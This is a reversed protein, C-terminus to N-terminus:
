HERPLVREWVFIRVNTGKDEGKKKGGLGPILFERKEYHGPLSKRGGKRRGSSIVASGRKRGGAEGM